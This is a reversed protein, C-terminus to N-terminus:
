VSFSTMKGCEECKLVYEFAHPHDGEKWVLHLKEITVWKHLHWDGFILIRILRIM